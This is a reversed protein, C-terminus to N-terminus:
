KNQLKTVEDHLDRLSRILLDNGHQVTDHNRTISTSALALREALPTITATLTERHVDAVAMYRVQQEVQQKLEAVTEELQKIRKSKFFM